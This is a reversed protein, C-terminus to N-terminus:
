LARTAGATPAYGLPLAATKPVAMRLNSDQRGLWGTFQLDPPADTTSKLDVGACFARGAGRLVIVRCDDDDRKQRFYSTLADVMRPDIANLRDPRELTLIDLTGSRHIQLGEHQRVSQARTKDNM